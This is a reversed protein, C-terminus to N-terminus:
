EAREILEDVLAHRDEDSLKFNVEHAKDKIAKDANERAEDKTESGAIAEAGAASVQGAQALEEATPQQSAEM